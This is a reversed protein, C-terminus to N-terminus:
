AKYSEIRMDRHVKGSNHYQTPREVPNRFGHEVLYSCLEEPGWGWPHMMYPDLTRPDGYLGWRGLQDPHKGKRNDIINQCCKILNPLELILLGGPKLIRRWEKLVAPCDWPYFHEFLHIAMVVDAVGDDLPISKADCLAEPDRPANPNRLADCNYWGDMVRAGCGVNVRM